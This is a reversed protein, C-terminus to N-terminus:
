CERGHKHLKVARINLKELAKEIINPGLRKTFIDALQNHTNTWTIKIKYQCIFDNIFYFARSLYKTKKKSANNGAILIAAENDCYIEMPINHEIDILLNNLQALQQSGDSLAIYEASCTSLAVVTQRKAGWAITNGNHKIVHGSTLREHEGGWNADSWLQLDGGTNDFHLRMDKTRKLYGILIDLAKWHEESPKASYRALLNVSYTLDPRAGGCLYMLCGLTSRYATGNIELAEEPLTSRRPFATRSYGVITQDVLFSQSLSIHGNDQNLNIGVIKEVTPNWKVEMELSMAQRLQELVEPSSGMTFGDYVHLWIVLFDAGKRCFFLSPELKSATFGIHEMKEKFFRFWCRAAQRTGYMAKKLRMVKGKWEPMLEIPPQVYVEEEIPSYLYASSIDFPAMPYNHKQAVLILLRLTNLFATPAYTENCDEGMTQNFGKAVYRARFKEISGDSLRKITFVWRAGLVKIGDYPNVAEWVNLTRFKDIEYEAAKRWEPGDPSKLAFKINKPIDFETGSPLNDIVKQEAEAIETTPEGGLILKMQSVIFNIDTKKPEKKFELPLFDPFVASTSHRLRREEKSWFLWGAGAIPYGLLCCEIGREDLKTRNDEPIHVIARAGFPYLTLPSPVVGFLKELPSSDVRSNPIRNHIYAATLYAYSWYIKPMEAEHLMTRAMDGITRNVREAEGNQEPHYPLIPALTTGVKALRDRLKNVFEGANDCRLYSPTRGCVNKLHKVWTMIKNPVDKRTPIVACYTYTSAHDRMTLLFRCGNIDTDFPGAVDTMFLDLPNDRPIQTGVGKPKLHLSKSIACQECFFSKSSIKVEPLLNKLFKCVIPESVHGLRVHWLYLDYSPTQSIENIMADPSIQLTWCFDHFNFHFPNEKTDVITVDKGQHITKWGSDILRGTSLISGKIGECFYVDDIVMLGTPTRIKLSGIFEIPATYQSIALSITLPQDFRCSVTFFKSTGSVNITSGYDLLVTGDNAEPLEIKRIHGNSQPANRNSPQSPRNPPIFRSGEDNHSPPPAEICGHRVDNWYIDCDSYWHGTERCYLCAYGFKALLSESHGKGKYFSAKEVSFKSTNNGTTHQQDDSRKQPPMYHARPQTKVAQVSMEVDSPITGPPLQGSSGIKSLASQIVTTVEGLTLVSSMNNLPQSVSYDFNKSDVGPPATALSKLILGAFENITIKDREIDTMITCFRALWSESAPLQEAAFKLIQNVLIVKHRRGSQKCKERLVKFLEKSSGLGESKVITLLDTHLTNIMLEAVKKNEVLGLADFNDYNEDDIFPKDRAFAHQLTCDIAKEWEIYNSGDFALIPKQPNTRNHTQVPDKIFQRLM